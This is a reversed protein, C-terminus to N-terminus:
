KRLTIPKSVDNITITALNDCTRNGYDLVRTFKKTSETIQVTGSIIFSCVLQRILPKTVLKTFTNGKSNTGSASGTISFVDDSRTPTEIGQTWEFKKTSNWSLDLGTAANVLTANSVVHTFVYNRTTQNQGSNTVVKTGGVTTGNVTYNNFTITLSSNTTTMPSSFTAIIKGSRTVENSNTCGTGFDFTVIKPWTNNTLTVSVSACPTSTQPNVGGLDLTSITTGAATAAATRASPDGSFLDPNESAASNVDTFVDTFTEDAQANNSVSTTDQNDTPQNQKKCSWFTLTIVGLTLFWLNFTRKM